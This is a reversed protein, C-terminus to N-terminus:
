KRSAEIDLLIDELFEKADLLNEANESDEEISIELIDIIDHIGVVLSVVESISMEAYPDVEEVPEFAASEFSISEAFLSESMMAMSEGGGSIMAAMMNDFRNMQSQKWCAIWLWDNLFIDFDDLDVEYETDTDVTADFNCIKKWEYWDEFRIPDIYDPSNPDTLDDYDPHNPDNVAPDNPDHSLWAQSFTSFEQLNVIGDSNWDLSNYIDDNNNGNCSYVEDAGIDIRDYCVRNEGDIDYEGFDYLDDDPNGANKCPSNWSLHYPNNPDPINNPDVIYAFMPEDDINYRGTVDNCDQICCYYATNDPNLGVVQDAGENNYWIICNQLDLYDPSNMYNPDSDVYSIGAKRNCIITNNYLTPTDSPVLINMGDFGTGKYGNGYVVSNKMNPTSYVTFIGYEDNEMIQCNELNLTDGSGTHRIGNEGNGGLVCWKINVNGNEVGIGDEVHNIIQCNEVSFDVEDGYVGTSASDSIIFGDLITNDAMVVIVESPTSGNDGTLTTPYRDPNRDTFDCGGSKFGGYVSMNDLLEFSVAPDYGPFYTGQAVYITNPGPVCTTYRARNLAQQLDTYADDWSTGNNDGTATEDVYIITGSDWCCVNPEFIEKTTNGLSSTMIALNHLWLGPEAKTNVTVELDVSGGTYPAIDDLLWQYYHGDAVYNSDIVLPSISILYDYDVGDPLYDILTVDTATLNTDNYWSITYNFTDGPSVCSNADHTKNLIIRPEIYDDGVVLGALGSLNSNEANTYADVMNWNNPDSNSADWWQVSGNNAYSTIFVQGAVSSNTAIGTIYADINDEVLTNPDFTRKILKDHGRWAGGYLSDDTANYDISVITNGMNVKGIYSFDDSMDYAYVETYQPIGSYLYESVYLTDGNIAVDCANQIRELQITEDLTLTQTAPTWSFVYLDNSNRQTGLLRSNPADYVIGTIDGTGPFTVTKILTLEKADLIQFNDTNESSMFLIDYDNDIALDIGGWGYHAMSAEDIPILQGNYVDFSFVRSGHSVVYLSEAMLSGSFSFLMFLVVCLCSFHKTAMVVERIFPSRNNSILKKVEGCKFDGM